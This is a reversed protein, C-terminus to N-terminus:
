VTDNSSDKKPELKDLGFLSTLKPDDENKPKQPLMAAIRMMMQQQMAFDDLTYDISSKALEITQYFYHYYPDPVDRFVIVKGARTPQLIYGRYEIDDMTKGIMM